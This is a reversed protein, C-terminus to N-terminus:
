GAQGPPVVSAAGIDDALGRTGALLGGDVPLDAGTIWGARESLLFHVADAVDRPTGVRGSPYWRTARDLADPSEALRRQWAANAITGPSVSNVRVGHPAYQVALSRTLNLLAAKAASYMDNGFYAHGNVSAVNVVAGRGASRMAPLLAQSMRFAGGLVVDLDESWSAEDISEFGVNTCVAANNVLFDPAGFRTLFDDAVTRVSDASRLDLAVAETGPVDRAVARAADLDRDALVVRHGDAVIARAIEAGIDGAAGTVIAHGM